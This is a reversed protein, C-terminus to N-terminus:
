RLEDREDHFVYIGGTEGMDQVHPIRTAPRGCAVTRCECVRRQVKADICAGLAHSRHSLRPTMNRLGPMCRVIDQLEGPGHYLAAGAEQFAKCHAVCDEASDHLSIKDHENPMRAGACTEGPFFRWSPDGDAAGAAEVTSPMTIVPVHIATLLAIFAFYCRM